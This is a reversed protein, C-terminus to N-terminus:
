CKNIHKKLLLLCFFSIIHLNYRVYVLLRVLFIINTDSTKIPIDFLRKLINGNFTSSNTLKITLYKTKVLLRCQYAYLM